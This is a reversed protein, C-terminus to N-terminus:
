RIQSGNGFHMTLNPSELRSGSLDTGHDSQSPLRQQIQAKGLAYIDEPAEISARLPLSVAQIHPHDPYRDLISIIANTQHLTRVSPDNSSVVVFAKDDYFSLAVAIWCEPRRGPSGVGLLHLSAGADVIADLRKLSIPIAM